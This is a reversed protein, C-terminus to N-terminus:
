GKQALSAEQQFRLRRWSGIKTEPLSFARRGVRGLREPAFKEVGWGRDASLVHGVSLRSGATKRRGTMPGTEGARSPASGLSSGPWSFAM